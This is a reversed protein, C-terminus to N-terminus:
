LTFYLNLTQANPIEARQALQIDQRLQRVAISLQNRLILRTRGTGSERLAATTVAALAVGIIGVILVALLIEALTFGKNNKM